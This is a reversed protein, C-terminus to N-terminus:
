KNKKNKRHKKQKEDKPKANKHSGSNQNEEEESNEMLKSKEVDETESQDKSSDINEDKKSEQNENPVEPQIDNGEKKNETEDAESLSALNRALSDRDLAEFDLTVKPKRGFIQHLAVICYICGVVYNLRFITSNDQCYLVCM